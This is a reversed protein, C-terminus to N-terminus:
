IKSSLGAKNCEQNFMGIIETQTEVHRTKTIYSLRFLAGFDTELSSDGNTAIYNSVACMAGLFMRISPEFVIRADAKQKDNNLRVTIDAIISRFKAPVNPFAMSGISGLQKNNPLEISLVTTFRNLLADDVGGFTGHYQGGENYSFVFVLNKGVTYTVGNVSFNGNDDTLDLLANSIDSPMRNVENFVIVANGRVVANHMETHVFRTVPTGNDNVIEDKGFFESSARVNQCSVFCLDYKKGTYNFLFKPISKSLMTKGNGANGVLALNFNRGQMISPYLMKEMVEKADPPLIYSGGVDNNLEVKKVEAFPSGIVTSIDRLTTEDTNGLSVNKIDYDSNKIINYISTFKSEPFSTLIFQESKLESLFKRTNVKEPKLNFFKCYADLLSQLNIDTKNLIFCPDVIRGLITTSNKGNPSTKLIAETWNNDHAPNLQVISGVFVNGVNVVVNALMDATKGKKVYLYEFM